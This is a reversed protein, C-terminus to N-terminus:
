QTSRYIRWVNKTRYNTYEMFSSNIENVRYVEQNLAPLGDVEEVIVSYLCRSYSWLGRETAIVKKGDEYFEFQADYTGDSNRNMVWKQMKEIDNVYQEGYWSGVLTEYEYDPCSTSAFVISSLFLLPLFLIKM